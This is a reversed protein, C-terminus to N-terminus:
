WISATAQRLCEKSSMINYIKRLEGENSVHFSTLIQKAQADNDKANEYLAAFSVEAHQYELKFDHMEVYYHSGKVSIEVTYRVRYLANWDKNKGSAFAYMGYGTYIHKDSELKLDKSNFIKRFYYEANHDMDERSFEDDYKVVTDYFPHRGKLPIHAAVSKEWEAKKDVHGTFTVAPLTNKGAVSAKSQGYSSVALAQVAVLFCFIFKM